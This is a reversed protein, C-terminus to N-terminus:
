IVYVSSTVRVLIPGLICGQPVRFVIAEYNFSYEISLIEVFAIAAIIGM